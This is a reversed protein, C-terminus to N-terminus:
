DLVTSYDVGNVTLISPALVAVGNVKRFLQDRAVIDTGVQLLDGDPTTVASSHVTASQQQSTKAAATQSAFSQADALSACAGTRAYLTVAAREALLATRSTSEFQTIAFRAMGADLGAQDVVFAAHPAQGDIGDARLVRVSICSDGEWLTVTSTLTAPTEGLTTADVAVGDVLVAEAGGPILVNTEFRATRTGAPSLDLQTLLDGGKQATVPHLPAHLPASGGYTKGYPDTGASPVISVTGVAPNSGVASVSIPKDYPTPAGMGPIVNTFTESTSGMARGDEIYAYRDLFRNPDTKAEVVKPSTDALARHAAGPHYVQGGRYSVLVQYNFVSYSDLPRTRWDEVRLFYAPGSSHTWDYERSSSGAMTESAPLFTAAIDYWFFDLAKRFEDRLVPDQVYGYGMMLAGLDIGYYVTSGYERIGWERTYQLWDRWRDVGDRYLAADGAGQGILIMQVDRLLRANTYGLQAHPAELTSKAALVFRDRITQQQSPTFQTFYQPANLIGAGLLLSFSTANIEPTGNSGVIVEVDTGVQTTSWAYPSDDDIPSGSLTMSDLSVHVPFNTVGRKELLRFSVTASPAGSTQASVDVSVHEWETTGGSVDREWVVEGGVLAQFAHYNAQVATVSDKVDFSLVHPGTGLEVSRSAIAASGAATPTSPAVTFQHCEMGYWCDGWIDNPLSGYAPHSPDMIQHDLVLELADWAAAPDAHEALEHAVVSMLRRATVQPTREYMSAEFADVEAIVGQAIEDLRDQWDVAMPRHGGPAAVAPAITGVALAVALVTAGLTIWRRFM